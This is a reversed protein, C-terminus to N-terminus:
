DKLAIVLDMVNTGTPGTKLLAGKANLWTGADAHDLADIATDDWTTGDVLAGAADTPGDTGDTGAVLLRLGSMGKIEQALMLALAQNRGGEGPNPPLIVTPEGGFVHVGPGASRLAAGIRPALAAIDDYLAEDNTGVPLGTQKAAAVVAARAIANSAVIRADFGFAPIAPADGIGSGIVALSDGEVDSIALTTVSTGQFQGLLKGGKVRSVATRAANMAHIDAGSALMEQARAKLGALDLGDLSAEALASAGGSVLMLLHSGAAMGSVAELLRAGAALSNEDPVPHAAEIVEAGEPAGQGHHYKTVVLLPAEPFAAHAARAMATAAKGVAVIQDPPPCPRATLAAAVARDGRVAAVGAWFLAELDTTHM